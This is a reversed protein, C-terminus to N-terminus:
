TKEKLKSITIKASDKGHIEGDIEVAPAIDCCGLCRVTTLDCNKDEEIKDLEEKIETLVQDSHKLYCNTGQCVKITHDRTPELKFTKDFYSVVRFIESLPTHLRDSLYNFVEEPLYGEEEQIDHLISILAGEEDSRKELIEDVKKIDM